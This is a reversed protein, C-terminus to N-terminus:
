TTSAGAFYMFMLSRAPDIITISCNEAAAFWCSLVLVCFVFSQAFFFSLSYLLQQSSLLVLSRAVTTFMVQMWRRDNCTVICRDTDDYSKQREIKGSKTLVFYPLFRFSFSLAHQGNYVSLVKSFDSFLSTHAYPLFELWAVLSQILMIGLCFFSWGCLFNIKNGIHDFEEHNRNSTTTTNNNADALWQEACCINTSFKSM